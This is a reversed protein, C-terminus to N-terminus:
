HKKDKEILYDVDLLKSTMVTDKLYEYISLSSKNYVSKLLM